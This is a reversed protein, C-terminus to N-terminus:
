PFFLPRDFSVNASVIPGDGTELSVPLSAGDARATLNDAGRLVPLSLSDYFFLTGSQQEATQPDRNDVLVQWSVHVPGSDPRIDYSVDATIVLLDDALAPAPTRPLALLALGFALPLVTLLRRRSM